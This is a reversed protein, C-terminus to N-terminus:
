FVSKSLYKETIGPGRGISMLYNFLRNKKEKLWFIIDVHCSIDSIDVRTVATM